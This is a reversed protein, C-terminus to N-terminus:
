GNQFMDKTKIPTHDFITTFKNNIDVGYDNRKYIRSDNIDSFRYYPVRIRGFFGFYGGHSRALEHRYNEQEGKQFYVKDMGFNSKEINIDNISIAYIEISKQHVPKEQGVHSFVIDVYNEGFKSEISTTYDDGGANSDKIKRGNIFISVDFASSSKAYYKIRLTDRGLVGFKNRKVMDDFKDKSVIISVM